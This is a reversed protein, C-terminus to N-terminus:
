LPAAVPVWVARLFEMWEREVALVLAVALGGIGGGAVIFPSSAM